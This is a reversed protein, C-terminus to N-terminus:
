KIKRLRQQCLKCYHLHGFLFDDPNEKYINVDNIEMDCEDCVLIRRFSM